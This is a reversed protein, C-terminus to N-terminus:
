LSEGRIAAFIHATASGTFIANGELVGAYHRFLQSACVMLSSSTETQPVTYRGAFGLPVRRRLILADVHWWLQGVITNAGVAPLQCVEQM